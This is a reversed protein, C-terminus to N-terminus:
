DVSQPNRFDRYFYIKPLKGGSDVIFGLHRSNADHWWQQETIPEFVGKEEVQYTFSASYYGSTPVGKDSAPADVIKSSVPQLSLIQEGLKGEITKDTRNVWLTQGIKFSESELNVAELKVPAIKNNPDSFVLLFFDTYDPPIEVSPADPPVEKPNDAQATLLKLPIAGAALKYLPSLNMSPLEVIQSTTGDFLYLTKPAAAPRDLFVIRCTREPADQAHICNVFALLAPLILHPHKM